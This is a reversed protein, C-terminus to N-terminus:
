YYYAKLLNKSTIFGVTIAGSKLHCALLLTRIAIFGVSIAGLFVNFSVNGM